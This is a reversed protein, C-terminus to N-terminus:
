RGGGVTAAIERLRTDAPHEKRGTLRRRGKEILGDIKTPRLVNEPAFYGNARRHEDDFAGRTALKLDALTRGEDILGAFTAALSAYSKTSEGPITCDTVQHHDSLWEDFGAERARAVSTTPKRSSGLGQGTGLCQGHGPVEPSTGTFKPSQSQQPPQQLEALTPDFNLHPEINSWRDTDEYKAIFMAIIPNSVEIESLDKAVSKGMQETLMRLRKVRSKVWLVGGRYYLIGREELEGLAADTAAPDLRADALMRRPVKYVGAMGCRPNTFSWLYLMLADNSVDALDDWIVNSVDEIRPM